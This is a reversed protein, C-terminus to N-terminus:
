PGSTKLADPKKKGAKGAHFIFSLPTDSLVAIGSFHLALYFLLVQSTCRWISYCCRLLAAGSLTDIGSCFMKFLMMKFLMM